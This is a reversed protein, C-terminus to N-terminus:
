GNEAQEVLLPFRIVGRVPQSEEEGTLGRTLMVETDRDWLWWPGRNGEGDRASLRFIPFALNDSAVGCNGAVMLLGDTTAKQVPFFTSFLVVKSVVEELENPRSGRWSQALLQLALTSIAPQSALSHDAPRV